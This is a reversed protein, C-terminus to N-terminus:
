CDKAKSKVLLSGDETIEFYLREHEEFSLKAQIEKPIWLCGNSYLLTDKINLMDMTVGPILGSHIANYITRVSISGEAFESPHEKLHQVVAFPSMRNNLLLSAIYEALNIDLSLKAKAGMHSRNKSVLNQSYVPDYSGDVTGRKLENYITTRSCGIEKAISSISYGEEVMSSILLRNKSTLQKHSGAM